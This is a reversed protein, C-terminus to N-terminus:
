RRLIEYKIKESKVVGKKDYEVTSVGLAQPVIEGERTLPLTEGQIHFTIENTEFDFQCGVISWDKSFQFKEEICCASIKVIILRRKDM